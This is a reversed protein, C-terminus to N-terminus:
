KSVIPLVARSLLLEVVDPDLAGCSLPYASAVAGLLVIMDVFPAGGIGLM